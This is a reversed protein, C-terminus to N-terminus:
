PTTPETPPPGEERPGGGPFSKRLHLVGETLGYSLEGGRRVGVSRVVHRVSDVVGDLRKSPQRPPLTQPLDQANERRLGRESERLAAGAEHPRADSPPRHRDASLVELEQVRPRAVYPRGRGPERAYRVGVYDVPSEMGEHKRRLTREPKEGDRRARLVRRLQGHGPQERVALQLCNRDGHGRGGRVDRGRLRAVVLELVDHAHHHVVGARTVVRVQVRQARVPAAHLDGLVVRRHRCRAEVAVLYLVHHRAVADIEEDLDPEVGKRQDM